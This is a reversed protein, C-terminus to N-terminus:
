LMILITILSNPFQRGHTFDIYPLLPSSCLSQSLIYSSSHNLNKVNTDYFGGNGECILNLIGSTM